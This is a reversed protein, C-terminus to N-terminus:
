LVAKLSIGDRPLSLPDTRVAALLSIMTKREEREKRRERGEDVILWM